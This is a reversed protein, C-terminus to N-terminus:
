KRLYLKKSLDSSEFNKYFLFAVFASLGYFLASLLFLTTYGSITSGVVSGFVMAAIARVSNNIFGNIGSLTSLKEKPLSSFVITTLIPSTINMFVFRLTYIGTFTVPERVFSLLVILPVVLLQMIFVFKLPGFRKGLKHSLISGLATGLQAISLAIGIGSASMAFLDKFIINGFHIFLGAGFGVAGTSIFYFSLIKKQNKNLGKLNFPNNSINAKVGKIRFIPIVAFFYVITAILLTIRLGILDGLVGGIFNGFVGSAMSLGFNLGFVKARNGSETNSSIAALVVTFIIATFGGRFFSLIIIYTKSIPYLMMIGVVPMLFSSFIIIKRKGIRDALFGLFIGIIATGWLQSSMVSSIFNNTFGLDRLFLNYLVRYMSLGTGSISTYILLNKAYNSM